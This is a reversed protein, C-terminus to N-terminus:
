HNRTQDDIMNISSSGGLFRPISGKNLLTNWQAQIKEQDEEFRFVLITQLHPYLDDNLQVLISNKWSTKGWKM